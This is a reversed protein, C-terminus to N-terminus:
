HLNESFYSTGIIFIAQTKAPAIRISLYYQSEKNPERKTYNRILSQLM